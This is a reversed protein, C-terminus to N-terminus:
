NHEGRFFYTADRVSASTNYHGGDVSLAGHRIRNDFLLRQGFAPDALALRQAVVNFAVERPGFRRVAAVGDRERIRSIPNGGLQLIKRVPLM